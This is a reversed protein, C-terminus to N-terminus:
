FVEPPRERPQAEFNIVQKHIRSIVTPPLMMLTEELNDGFACYDEDLESLVAEGSLAIIDKVMARKQAVMELRKRRRGNEVSNFRALRSRKM